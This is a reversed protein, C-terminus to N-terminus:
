CLSSSQQGWASHVEPESCFFLVLVHHLLFFLILSTCVHLPLWLEVKEKQFHLNIQTHPLSIIHNFDSIFFSSKHTCSHTPFNLHSCQVTIRTQIIPVHLLSPPLLAMSSARTQCPLFLMGLHWFHSIIMM